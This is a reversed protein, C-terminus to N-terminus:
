RTVNLWSIPIRFLFYRHNDGRPRDGYTGQRAVLGRRLVYRHPDGDRREVGQSSVLGCSGRCHVVLDM